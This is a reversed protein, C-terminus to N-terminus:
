AAMPEKSNGSAASARAAQIELSRCLHVGADDARGRRTLAESARLHIDPWDAGAAIAARYHEVAAEDDGAETALEALQIMGAPSDPAAALAETAHAHAAGPEGLRRYARSAALHLDARGPRADLAMEVAAVLVAFLDNDMEGGRVSCLSEVIDPENAIRNALDHLSGAPAAHTPPLHVRVTKGADAAARAALALQYALMLDNPRLDLARQFSRAASPADGLAAAAMALYRHADANDCEIRAAQALSERAEAYQEEAALFLGRQLHLCGADGFQRLARALTLYADERLGAQWQAQALRRQAEPSDERTRRAPKELQELCKAPRGRRAHIGALLSELEVTAGATDIATKLHQQAVFYDGADLAECALARLALAYHRRALVGLTDPRALLPRLEDAADAFRGQSRFQLGRAYRGVVESTTTDQSM